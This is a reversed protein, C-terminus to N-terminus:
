GPGARNGLRSRPPRRSRTATPQERPPDDRRGQQDSPRDALGDRRRQERGLRVRRRLRDRGSSARRLFEDVSGSGPDIRSIHDDGTDTVWVAGGGVTVGGPRKGVSIPLSSPGDTAPNIRTVRSDDKDAVWVSSNGYAIASPANGASTTAVVRRSAPDIRFVSSDGFAVWVSDRGVTISGQAGSGVALRNFPPRITEIGTYQPAVRSVTGLLAHAVWVAGFGVALGDPTADLQITRAVTRKEPDVRSLSKDGLNAVWVADVGVAVADPRPGVPVHGVVNNSRVDIVAVSNPPVVMGSSRTASVIALTAATVAVAGALILLRRRRIPTPSRKPAGTVTKRELAAPPRPARPTSASATAQPQSPTELELDHTLIQRELKQLETSPELGLRDLASRAHQYAQLAETQRGSRYLALMLQGRLRERHPNQAILAELEGILEGDRGLALDAEVREEVAGLRLKELREIEVRAFPEFVFEALAPGRWLELAARLVRAAREADDQALAEHGEALLREFRRLDLQEPEVQLVYGPPHTALVGNPLLKRLRSVHMQLSTVATAPPADGWLEDILRDRSLVQNAHLLFLALLARQKSGALRVSEDGDRVELPGLVRYRM